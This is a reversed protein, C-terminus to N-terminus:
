RLRAGLLRYLVAGLGISVPALAFGISVGPDRDLIAGDLAAGFAAGITFATAVWAFAEAATGAPAIRDVTLFTAALLPPLALGSAAVLLLMAPPAPALLMPLYGTAVAAALVPLRRAPQPFRTNLLGGVLAGAANAALLWGVWSRDGAAEAYRTVAVPLAGVGAGLLVVAGLLVRMPMSRLPGAWHREAVEGRWRRVAPATAFWATGVLQLGATAWLGAAPGGV